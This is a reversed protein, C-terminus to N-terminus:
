ESCKLDSLAPLNNPTIIQLGILRQESLKLFSISSIITAALLEKTFHTAGGLESAPMEGSCNQNDCFIKHLNMNSNKLKQWVLKGLSDKSFAMM